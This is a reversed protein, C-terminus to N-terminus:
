LRRLSGIALISLAAAVCEKLYALPLEACGIGFAPSIIIREPFAEALLQQDWLFSGGYGHLYVLSPTAQDSRRPRYVLALGDTPTTPLFCYPLSSPASAFAPDKDILAYRDACLTQLKAADAESLGLSAPQSLALAVINSESSVKLALRFAPLFDAAPRTLNVPKSAHRTPWTIRTVQQALSTTNLHFVLLILAWIFIVSRFM